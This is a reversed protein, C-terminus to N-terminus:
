CSNSGARSTVNSDRYNGTYILIVAIGSAYWMRWGGVLYSHPISRLLGSTRTFHGGM